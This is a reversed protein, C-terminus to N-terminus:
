QECDLGKKGFDDFKLLFRWTQIRRRFNLNSLYMAHSPLVNTKASTM